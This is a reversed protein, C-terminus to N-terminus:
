WFVFLTFLDGAFVVGLTCGVYLLAAVHQGYDKIHLAYVMGIFSMIVFVYAFVMSLKDVRGLILEYDLFQYTWYVGHPMNILNWFAITPILLVLAQKLIRIRILPILLAGIIYIFAPPINIM